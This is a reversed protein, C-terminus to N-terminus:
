KPDRRWDIFEPILLILIISRPITKIPTPSAIRILNGKNSKLDESKKLEKFGHYKVM